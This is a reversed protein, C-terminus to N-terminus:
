IATGVQSFPLRRARSALLVASLTATGGAVTIQARVYRNPNVIDSYFVGTAAIQTLTKKNTWVANDPSDQIVIDVTGPLTSADIGVMAKDPMGMSNNWTDVGVGNAAGNTYAGSLLSFFGITESLKRHPAM